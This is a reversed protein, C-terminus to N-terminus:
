VDPALWWSFCVLSSLDPHVIRYASDCDAHGRDGNSCLSVISSVSCLLLIRSAEKLHQRISVGEGAARLGAM